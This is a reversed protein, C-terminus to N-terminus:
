AAVALDAPVNARVLATVVPPPVSNGVLAIQAEKTIPKGDITPAIVYDPGFDHAAYLEHPALMRSGIDTVAYEIGDVRVTVADNFRACTYEELLARVEGIHAGGATVTPLACLAHHDRVTVTSLPRELSQGVARFRHAPSGYRKEIFAAVLRHKVGGAVLTGLPAEIDLARPAQGEREGYGSQALAPAILSLEGRKAATITRLPEDISHVRRDRPHTVPVIFPRANSLVYRRVGEAIRRLTAPKLPRAREFISPCPLWWDIISAASRWPQGTGAGHSPEPWVIPEGDCRAVIFLRKRTTPAGYDAAVLTRWEVRYGYSELKRVWARFTEGRRERIPRGDDGIPGWGQFEEVNEVIVVRPRVDRAWRCVVWALGRLKRARPKGGKAKSHHTCDPSAWLLWVPHDGVVDRPAVRYVSECFHVTGPHNLAHVRVAIPDHNVAIDPDRGLARMIGTSVGGGGAFLDVILPRSWRQAGLSPAIRANM